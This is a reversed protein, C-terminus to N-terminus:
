SRTRLRRQGRALRAAAAKRVEEEEDDAALEALREKAGSQALDVSQAADERIASECDWLAEFASSGPFSPATPRLTEVAYHRAFSYPISRYVSEVEAFPGIIGLHTLMELASTVRYVRQWSIPSRLQRRIWPLDEVTANRELIDEAAIRLPFSGTS